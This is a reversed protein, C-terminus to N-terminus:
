KRVMMLHQLGASSSPAPIVWPYVDFGLQQSADFVQWSGSPLSRWIGVLHNDSTIAFLCIMASGPGQSQSWTSCISSIKYGTLTSLNESHWKEQSDRWAHVLNDDTDVLAFHDYQDVWSWHSYDWALLREGLAFDQGLAASVDTTQWPSSASPRDLLYFHGHTDVAGLPDWRIFGGCTVGCEATVDELTWVSGNFHFLLLHGDTGAVGATMFTGAPASVAPMLTPRGVIKAGLKASVDECHWDSGSQWRFHLLDGSPDRAVLHLVPQSGSGTVQVDGDCVNAVQRGTQATIDTAQWDHGSPSVTFMLLHGTASTAWVRESFSGSVPELSNLGGLEACVAGAGTLQSVNESQWQQWNGSANFWAHVLNGTPSEPQFPTTTTTTSATTTTTGGPVTTSTTEGSGRYGLLNHLLQACEGRTAAVSFAYTNSVGLGELLGAYAAAAANSFHEALSFQGASFPPTYSEPPSSLKVARVVMTILQQRTINAGPSFTTASTGTTIGQAACVAVYKAPYNPDAANPTTDVDTFPCVIDPPVTLGLTKVIMKAFQQRTVPNDPRFTGDAFGNIIGRGSLDAIAEANPYSAPVDSFSVDTAPAPSVVVLFAAIAVVIAGAVLALPVLSFFPWRSGTPNLRASM